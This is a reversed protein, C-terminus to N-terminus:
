RYHLQHNIPTNARCRWSPFFIDLRPWNAEWPEPSNVRNPFRCRNLLCGIRPWQKQERWVLHSLIILWIFFQINKV